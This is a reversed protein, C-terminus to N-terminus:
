GGWILSYLLIALVLLTIAVYVWDRQIAFAAVSFCVRAIPTAMLVLLGCQVIHRGRGQLAGAVIPGLRIFEPPQGHFVSYDPVERGHRILYIVGGASVLVASAVVGVRLLTGIIRDVREDTWTEAM